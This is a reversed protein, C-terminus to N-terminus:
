RPVEHFGPVVVATSGNFFSARIRFSRRIYDEGSGEKRTYNSGFTKRPARNEFVKLM